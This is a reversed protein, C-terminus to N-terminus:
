KLREMTLKRMMLIFEMPILTLTPDEMEASLSLSLTADTVEEDCSIYFELSNGYQYLYGVSRDNSAGIGGSVVIM